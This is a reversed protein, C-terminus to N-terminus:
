QERINMVTDTTNMKMSRKMKMSMLINRRRTPANTTKKMMTIANKVAAMGTKVDRMIGADRV